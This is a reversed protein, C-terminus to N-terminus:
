LAETRTVIYVVTRQNIQNISQNLFSVYVPHELCVLRANFRCHCVTFCNIYRVEFSLHDPCNESADVKGADL